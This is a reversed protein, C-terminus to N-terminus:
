SNLLYGSLTPLRIHVEILYAWVQCKPQGLLLSWQSHSDFFYIFHSYIQKRTCLGGLLHACNGKTVM